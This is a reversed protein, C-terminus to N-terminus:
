VNSILCKTQLTKANCLLKRVQLIRIAQDLVSKLATYYDTSPLQMRSFHCQLLLHVKTHPSNYTNASVELPCNKSLEENLIDENHRVPLESYESVETMISLLDFLTLSPSLSDRFHQMTKHSLYYYAAIRGFSTPEVHRLDQFINLM